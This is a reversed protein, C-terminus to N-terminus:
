YVGVKAKINALVKNRIENETKERKKLKASIYQIMIMIDVETYSIHNNYIQQNNKRLKRNAWKIGIINNRINKNKM